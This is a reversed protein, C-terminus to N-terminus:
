LPFFSVPNTVDKVSSVGVRARLGVCARLVGFCACLVCALAHVCCARGRTCARGLTCAHGRTCAALMGARVTTQFKLIESSISHSFFWNVTLESDAIM